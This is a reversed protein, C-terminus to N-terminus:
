QHRLQKEVDLGGDCVVCAYISMVFCFIHIKIATSANQRGHQYNTSIM